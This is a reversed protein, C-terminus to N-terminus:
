AGHEGPVVKEILQGSLLESAMQAGAPSACRLAMAVGLVHKFNDTVLERSSKGAAM